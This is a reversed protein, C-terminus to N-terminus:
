QPVLSLSLRHVLLRKTDTPCHSLSIKTFKPILRVRPTPFHKPSCLLGSDHSERWRTKINTVGQECVHMPLMM